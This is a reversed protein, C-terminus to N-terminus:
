LNLRIEWRGETLSERRGRVTTTGLLYTPMTSIPPTAVYVQTLNNTKMFNQISKAINRTLNMMLGLDRRYYECKKNDGSDVHECFHKYIEKPKNRWHMALYPRRKLVNKRISDASHQISLSPVLNETVKKYSTWTFFRLAWVGVCNMSSAAELREILQDNTRPLHEYEPLAVGFASRYLKASNSYAHINYKETRPSTLVTEVTKNCYANFEELSIMNVITKMQNIDFTEELTRTDRPQEHKGFMDHGNFVIANVLSRNQTISYQLASKFYDYQCNPGGRGKPNIYLLLRTSSNTTVSTQQLKQSTSSTVKRRTDKMGYQNKNEAKEPTKMKKKPLIGRGLHDDDINLWFSELFWIVITITLIAVFGRLLMTM